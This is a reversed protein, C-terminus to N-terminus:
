KLQAQVDDPLRHKRKARFAGACGVASYSTAVYFDGTLGGRLLRLPQRRTCGCEVCCGAGDPVPPPAAPHLLTREIENSM